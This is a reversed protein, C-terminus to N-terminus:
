FRQSFKLGINLPRIPVSYIAGAGIGAPLKAFRTLQGNTDFANKILLDLHSNGWQIGAAFDQQVFSPNQGLQARLNVGGVDTQLYNWSSGTYVTSSQVYSEMGKVTFAYRAVINAKVKPSVPLQTGSPAQPTACDTVPQGNTQLTGCYNKTLHADILSLAASTSFGSTVQWELNTELGQSAASGANATIYVANAGQFSFQFNNWPDYYLDGNWRLRNDLWSTKWGVEYNILKEALYPAVTQSLNIGGPRYGDSTTFYVLRSPDIRYTITGKYIGGTQSVSRNFDLCPAGDFPTSTICNGVGAPYAFSYNASVGAFEMVSNDYKYERYGAEITLDPLIDYSLNAFVAEDVYRGQERTEWASHPDGPVTLAPNVDGVIFQDFSHDFAQHEWFLGGAVRFRETLPSSLRLEQSNKHYADHYRITQAFDVPAGKALNLYSSGYNAFVDYFYSYDTYDQLQHFDHKLYSGTYTLDFNGVKGVITLATLFYQDHSYEPLHFATQGVGVNNAYGFFGSTQQNQGVESLTATWDENLDIKLAARGGETETPNFNRRVLSANNITFGTSPYTLSRYVNNIYGGDHEQYAVLRLAVTSSLPFNVFGEVTDGWSGTGNYNGGVDYGASFKTTDPQNTIIKLTGAESSAGYLTGQPGELEEVRAIDYIHLDIAASPTTTPAEDIYTGVLPFQDNPLTLGSSIGRMFINARGPTGFVQSYSVSPLMAIYSDLSKIDLDTLKASTLATVAVPVNQLNESRKQATVVVEELTASESPQDVPAALVQHVAAAVLSTTALCFMLASKQKM